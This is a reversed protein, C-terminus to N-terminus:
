DDVFWGKNLVFNNKDISNYFNERNEIDRYEIFYGFYFMNVYNNVYKM